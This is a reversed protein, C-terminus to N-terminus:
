HASENAAQRPNSLATFLATSNPEKFYSQLIKRLSAINMDPKGELYSRLLLGPSISKIVADCIDSVSFNKKLNQIQYILSMFSLKKKQRPTGIKENIKFERKVIGASYWGLQEEGLRQILHFAVEEMFLADEKTYVITM